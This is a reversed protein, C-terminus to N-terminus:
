KLNKDIRCEMESTIYEDLNLAALTWRMFEPTFPNFKFWLKWFQEYM